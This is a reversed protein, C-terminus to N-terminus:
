LARVNGMIDVTPAGTSLGAGIAPSGSTLVLNYRGAASYWTPDWAALLPSSQQNNAFSAAHAGFYAWTQFTMSGGNFPSIGEPLAIGHLTGLPWCHALSNIIRLPPQM